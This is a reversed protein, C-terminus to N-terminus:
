AYRVTKYLEHITYLLLRVHGVYTTCRRVYCYQHTDDTVYALGPGSVHDESDTAATQLVSNFDLVPSYTRTKILQVYIIVSWLHEYDIRM